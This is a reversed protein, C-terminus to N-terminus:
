FPLGSVKCGREIGRERFWGRNMELVYRVPAAACHTDETQPQMEAVNVVAGEEDLFAASLAVPTDKMWYCTLVPEDHVFLMGENEPLDRRHMLGLGRQEDTRAVLAEIRHPGAHLIIRPLNMRFDYCLELKYHWREQWM